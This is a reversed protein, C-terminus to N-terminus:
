REFRDMRRELTAVRERLGQMERQDAAHQMRLAHIERQDEYRAQWLAARQADTEGAEIFKDEDIAITAAPTTVPSAVPSPITLSAPSIPLSVFSWEPSSPTHVPARVPPADFEIDIYLM